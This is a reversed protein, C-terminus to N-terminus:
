KIVGEAIGDWRKRWSSRSGEQVSSNYHTGGWAKHNQHWLALCSLTQPGLAQLLVNWSQRHLKQAQADVTCMLIAHSQDWGMLCSKGMGHQLLNVYAAIKWLSAFLGCETSKWLFLLFLTNRFLIIGEQWNWPEATLGLPSQLSFIKITKGKEGEGGAWYFLINKGLM